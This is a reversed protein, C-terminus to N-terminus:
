RVQELCDLLWKKSKKRIQELKCYVLGYKIPKKFLFTKEEMDEQVYVIREELDLQKLLSVIEYSCKENRDVVAIFPKGLLVALQVIVPADTIIMSAKKVIDIYDDAACKDKKMGEYRAVRYRISEEALYLLKEKQASTKTIYSLIFLGEEKGIEKSVINVDEDLLIPPCVLEVDMKFEGNMINLTNEDAVSIGAFKKMEFYAINKIGLPYDCDEGFSPAYALKRVEDSYKQLFAEEVKFNESQKWVGRGGTIVAGVNDLSDDKECIYGEKQLVECLADTSILQELDNSDNITRLVIRKDKDM